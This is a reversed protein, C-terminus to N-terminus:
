VKIFINRKYLWYLVLWQVFIMLVLLCFQQMAVSFNSLLGAFLSNTTYRWDILSTALYVVISNVGIVAFFRAFNQWKLVDILGYFLTLAMVSYGLTVLVFSSSWLTKNIPFFSHWTYGAALLIIAFLTLRTLLFLPKASHKKLYRGVFVGVLANVISPINSLLGEPDIALNQYRVGPLLHLDFWANLAGTSSYDGGGYDGITVFRLLLWYGLLIAVAVLWQSKESLYWICLSAVFGAIAIRGLVSVYRIEDMAAPIGTGWGHNYVIGLLCLLVLRKTAKLQLQFQQSQPYHALPKASLGLSIGSLFIFLPFIIDYATIGHWQSHLMQEALVSFVSWGTLLFLAAFLGEAGLIWIMDFGRLADISLLRAKNSPPNVAQQNSNTM